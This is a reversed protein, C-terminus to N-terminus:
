FANEICLGEEEIVWMDMVMKGSTVVRVMKFVMSGTDMMFILLRIANIVMDM